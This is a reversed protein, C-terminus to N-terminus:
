NRWKKRNSKKYKEKEAGFIIAQWAVLGFFLWNPFEVNFILIPIAIATIISLFLSTIWFQWYSTVFLNCVKRILFPNIFLWLYFIFQRM